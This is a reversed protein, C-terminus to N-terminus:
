SKPKLKSRLTELADPGIRPATQRIMKLFHDVAPQDSPFGINPNTTEEDEGSKKANSDISSQGDGDLIVYWPVGSQNGAPYRDRLAKIRDDRSVDLKVFVYHPDLEAKASDLFRALLRCPGCWSASFILFVRKDTAKAQAQAATLMAQADRTALKHDLLFRALAPSDLKGDPGLRLPYSATPKGDDDLVVLVPASTKADVGLESAFALVDSHTSDLSALEFEWRLDAPTKPKPKTIDVEDDSRENFLRFLDVCTASNKDGFLIMPRTYERKAEALLTALRADLATKKSAEFSDKARQAATPPVYPKPPALDL